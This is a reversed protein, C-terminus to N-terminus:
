FTVPILTGRDPCQIGSSRGSKTTFISLLKKAPALTLFYNHHMSKLNDISTQGDASNITCDKTYKNFTQIHCIKEQKANLLLMVVLLM